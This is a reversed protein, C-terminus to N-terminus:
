NHMLSDIFEPRIYFSVILYDKYPDYPRLEYNGTFWYKNDYIDPGECQQGYRWTKLKTGDKYLCVSDGLLQSLPLRVWKTDNSLYTGAYIKGTYLASHPVIEWTSCSDNEETKKAYHPNTSGDFHNWVSDHHYMCIDFPESCTTSIHYTLYTDVLVPEYHCSCILFAVGTLLLLHFYKRM